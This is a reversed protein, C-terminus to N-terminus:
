FNEFDRKLTKALNEPLHLIFCETLGKRFYEARNLSEKNHFLISDEYYEIMINIWEIYIDRTLSEVNNIYDYDHITNIIKGRYKIIVEKYHKENMERIIEKLANEDLQQFCKSLPKEKVFSIDVSFNKM